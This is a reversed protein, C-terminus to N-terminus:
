LARANSVCTAQIPVDFHRGPSIFRIFDGEKAAPLRLGGSYQGQPGTTITALPAGEGNLLLRYEQNLGKGSLFLNTKNGQNFNILSDRVDAKLFSIVKPNNMFDARAIQEVLDDRTLEENHTLLGAELEPRSAEQMRAALVAESGGSVSCITFFISAMDGMETHASLERDKAFAICVEKGYTELRLGDDLADSRIGPLSLVFAGSRQEDSFVVFQSDLKTVPKNGDVSFCMTPGRKIFSKSASENEISMVGAVCPLLAHPDQGNHLQVWTLSASLQANADFGRATLHAGEFGGGIKSISTVWTDYLNVENILWSHNELVQGAVNELSGNSRIASAVLPAFRQAHGDSFAFEEGVSFTGASFPSNFCASQVGITTQDGVVKGFASQVDEVTKLDPAARLASEISNFDEQTVKTVPGSIPLHHIDLVIRSLHTTLSDITLVGPSANPPVYRTFRQAVGVHSARAFLAKGAFDPKICVHALGRQDSKGFAIVADAPEGRKDIEHLTVLWADAPVEKDLVANPEFDFCRPPAASLVGAGKGDGSSISNPFLCGVTTLLLILVVLLSSFQIAM